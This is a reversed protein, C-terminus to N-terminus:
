WNQIHPLLMFIQTLRKRFSATPLLFPQCASPINTLHLSPLGPTFLMGSISTVQSYSWQQKSFQPIGAKLFALPEKHGLATVIVTGLQQRHKIQILGRSYTDAHSRTNTSGPKPPNKTQYGTWPSTTSATSDTWRHTLAPSTQHHHQCLHWRLGPEVALSSSAQQDSGNQPCRTEKVFYVIPIKNKDKFQLLPYQCSSTRWPQKM